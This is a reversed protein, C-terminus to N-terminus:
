SPQTLVRAHQRIGCARRTTVHRSNTHHLIIVASAGLPAVDGGSMIAYDLGSFKALQKAVLTKGTGPPGYFMVNRFPAGHAKSMATAQALTRIKAELASAFVAEQLIADGRGGGGGGRGLQGLRGLAWDRGRGLLAWPAYGRRSTERVLPPRGLIAALRDKALRAGERAGYVSLALAGCLAVATFAERPEGLLRRAGEGFSGFAAEISAV